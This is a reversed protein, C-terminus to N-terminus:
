GLNDLHTRYSWLPRLILFCILPLLSWPVLPQLSARQLHLFCLFTRFCTIYPLPTPSLHFAPLLSRPSPHPQINLARHAKNLAKVSPPLAFAVYIWTPHGVSEMSCLCSQARQFSWLKAQDWIAQPSHFGESEAWLIPQLSIFPKKKSFKTTTDSERLNVRWAGRDM